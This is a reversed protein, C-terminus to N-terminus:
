KNEDEKYRNYFLMSELPKRKKTGEKQGGKEYGLTCLLGIRRNKPIGLLEKIKSENFYGIICTGLGLAAAQLCFHGMALGTDIHNYDRDTLMSGISSQINTKEMVQVVIVPATRVFKNMSGVPPVCQEAVKQVLDRDEVVIFSWPQSNCASPALRAAEICKEILSPVPKKDEYQRVSKRLRVLTEFDM